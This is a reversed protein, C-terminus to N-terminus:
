KQVAFLPLETNYPESGSPIHFVARGEEVDKETAARGSVVPINKWDKSDIEEWM